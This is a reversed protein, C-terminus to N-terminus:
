SATAVLRDCVAGIHRHDTGCCGGVVALKPLLARLARYDSALEDPDGPDLETAEDLEAHSRKSANARVGRVRERWAGGQELVHAFHTPHACNILYYAPYAGTAADAAEIAESLPMGSPLRGDTEVTFSVAVPMGAAEAARVVGIAEEVYTMTFVSVLDAATSAFTEVQPAHYAQAAEASMTRGVVYGDGRPGLNGSIVIPTAPTELQDRLEALQAVAARNVAALRAADYGLKAGWDPNARWTPTELVIGTGAARAIEIHQAFYDRLRARGADDDLLVFSAFYPLEIGDHFILTTEMGSDAIFLRDDLQPLHTRYPSM